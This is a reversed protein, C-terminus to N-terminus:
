QSADNYISVGENEATGGVEDSDDLGDNVDEEIAVSGGGDDGTESGRTHGSDVEVTAVVKGQHASSTSSVVNSDADCGLLFMVLLAIFYRM